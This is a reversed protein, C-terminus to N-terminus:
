YYNNVENTNARTIFISLLSCFHHECVLRKALRFEYNYLKAPPKKDSIIQILDDSIVSVKDSSLMTSNIYSNMQKSAAGRVTKNALVSYVLIYVGTLGNLIM